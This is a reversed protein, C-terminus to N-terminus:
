AREAQKGDHTVMIVCSDSGRHVVPAAPFGYQVSRVDEFWLVYVTLRVLRFGPLAQERGALLGECLM